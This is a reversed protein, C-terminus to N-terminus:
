TNRRDRQVQEWMIAISKAHEVNGSKEWARRMTQYPRELPVFTGRRCEDDFSVLIKHARELDQKQLFGAMVSEYSVPSPRMRRDRSNHMAWLVAEASESDGMRTLCHIVNNKSVTDHIFGLQDM